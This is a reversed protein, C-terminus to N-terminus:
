PPLERLFERFSATVRDYDSFMDNHDTGPLITLRKPRTAAAFLVLGEKVPITQDKQGHLILLPPHKGSLQAVNNLPPIPELFDPYYAFFFVKERAVHLLSSFTSVLIVGACPHRDDRVLTTIIGGGISEGFLVIRDPPVRATQTLYSYAAETDAVVGALSPQGQSLGFGQYDFVFVSYGTELLSKVHYVRHSINGANGHAILVWYKSGPKAFTWGHLKEGTANSFYVDQKKVGLINDIKYVDDPGYPFFLFRSFVMSIVPPSLVIYSAVLTLVIAIASGKVVFALSQGVTLQTGM